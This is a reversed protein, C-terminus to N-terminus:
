DEDDDGAAKVSMLIKAAKAHDRVFRHRTLFDSSVCAGFQYLSGTVADMFYVQKPTDVLAFARNDCVFLDHNEVWMTKASAKANVPFCYQAQACEADQSLKIRQILSM